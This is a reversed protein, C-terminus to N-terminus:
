RIRGAKRERDLCEATEVRKTIEAEAVGYLRVGHGAWAANLRDVYSLWVPRPQEGAPPAPLAPLSPLPEAPVRESCDIRPPDPALAPPRYSACATLALALAMMPLPNKTM